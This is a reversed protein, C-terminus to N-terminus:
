LYQDTLALLHFGWKIGKVAALLFLAQKSSRFLLSPFIVRVVLLEKSSVADIKLDNDQKPNIQFFMYNGERHTDHKRLLARHVGHGPGSYNMTELQSKGAFSLIAWLHLSQRSKHNGRELKYKHEFPRIERDM